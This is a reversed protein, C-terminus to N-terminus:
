LDPRISSTQRRARGRHDVLITISSTCNMRQSDMTTHISSRSIISLFPFTLGFANRVGDHCVLAKFGFDYEPHGQIWNIAFGGWSAGAAATRQPDIEPYTDLIYKWGLQLDVFPKGGWDETIADTFNQGYTTSGTPNIFVTFYGQQSFVNPNWRTSWSDEWAGQPGGHILFVAPYKKKKGEVWGKPKLVFGHVQIDQAGAFWIEEGP